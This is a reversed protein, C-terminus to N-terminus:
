PQAPPADFPDGSGNDISGDIGPLTDEIPLLSSLLNVTTQTVFQYLGTSVADRLNLGCSTAPLLGAGCVAVVRFWSLATKKSRMIM